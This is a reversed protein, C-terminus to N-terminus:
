NSRSPLLLSVTKAIHDRTVPLIMGEGRGDCVAVLTEWVKDAFLRGIANYRILDAKDEVEFTYTRRITKLGSPMRVTIKFRFVETTIDDESTYYDLKLDGEKENAEADNVIPAVIAKIKNFRVNNNSDVM